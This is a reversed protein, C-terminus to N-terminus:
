LVTNKAVLQVWKYYWFSAKDKSLKLDENYPTKFRYSLKHFLGETADVVGANHFITYKEIDKFDSTAWSFALREDVKVEKKFYWLNWLFAWMGATWKQIPYDTEHQKKWFPEKKSLFQYIKISDKEIKDFMEFTAGKIIYQGGGSNKQESKVKESDVGVIACMDEFQTETGQRKKSLIYDAGIYSITDSLYCINDNEFVEFDPKRTFLIDSDHLFLVKKELWPNAELHQKLANFYISPQYGHWERTDPYYAFTVGKYKEELRKWEPPVEKASNVIHIDEKRIGVSLFNYIMIEIQWTFYTEAPQCCIYRLNM